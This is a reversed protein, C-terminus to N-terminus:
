INHSIRSLFYKAIERIVEIIKINDKNKFYSNISDPTLKERQTKTLDLNEQTLLTTKIAESLKDSTKSQWEQMYSILDHLTNFKEAAKQSLPLLIFFIVTVIFFGEDDNNFFHLAFDRPHIISQSQNTTIKYLLEPPCKILKGEFNFNIKEGDNIQFQPKKFQAKAKKAYFLRQPLKVTIPHQFTLLTKLNNGYLKKMNDILHTSENQQKKLKSISNGVIFYNTNNPINDYYFMISSETPYIEKKLINKALKAIIGKAKQELDVGFKIFELINEMQKIQEDTTNTISYIKNLIELALEKNSSAEITYGLGIIFPTIEGSPTILNDQMIINIYHDICYNPDLIDHDLICVLNGRPTFNLLLKNRLSAFPICNYKNQNEQKRRFQKAYSYAGLKKLTEYLYKAEIFCRIRNAKIIETTKKGTPQRHKAKHEYEWPLYWLATEMQVEFDCYYHQQLQQKALNNKRTSLSKPRNLLLIIKNIADHNSQTLKISLLTFYKQLKNEKQKEQNSPKQSLPLIQPQNDNELSPTNEELVPYIDNRASPYTVKYEKNLINNILDIININNLSHYSWSNFKNDLDPYLYTELTRNDKNQIKISINSIKYPFSIAFQINVNSKTIITLFITEKDSKIEYPLSSTPAAHLKEIITILPIPTNLKQQNIHNEIDLCLYGEYNKDIEYDIDSSAEDSADSDIKVITNISIKKKLQKPTCNKNKKLANTKPKSSPPIIKEKENVYIQNNYSTEIQNIEQSSSSSTTQTQQNNSISQYTSFNNTPITQFIHQNNFQAINNTTNSKIKPPTYDIDTTYGDVNNLNRQKRNTKKHRQTTTTKTATNIKKTKQKIHTETKKLPPNTQTLLRKQLSLAPLLFLFSILFLKKNFM